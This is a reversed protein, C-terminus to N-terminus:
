EYKNFGKSKIIENNNGYIIAEVDNLSDILKIAEKPKMLFITTSLIDALASDHTIITTSLSNNAPYLTTPDIIHHYRKGDVEFFREYGGSTVVSINEGKVIAYNKTKDTPNEIAINYYGRKYNKGVKINGGANILYYDLGKSELYEGVKETAYGKSVAGLDIYLNENKIKGDKINLPYIELNLEEETPLGLDNDRHSKWISLLNGINVNFLKNSKKYWENSLELMNYIEKDVKIYEDNSNNHNIKYLTSNEDYVNTLNQYKKYIKDVEKLAENAKKTNESYIKVNIYTDMYFMNKEVEKKTCGSLLFIIPLIM